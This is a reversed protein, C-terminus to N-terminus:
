FSSELSSFMKFRVRLKHKDPVKSIRLGLDSDCDLNDSVVLFAIL